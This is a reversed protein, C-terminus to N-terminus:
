SASRAWSGLWVNNFGESQRRRDEVTMEGAPAWWGRRLVSEAWARRDSEGGEFQEFWYVSGAPVVRRAPKPEGKALDWGSVVDHRGIAAALLKAGFGGSRLVYGADSRAVGPPLWGERFMGPTALVVRFSPGVAEVSPPSTALAGAIRVAHGDGGLRLLGDNPLLADAGQVGVMLSVRDRLAITDTTYLMGERATRVEADLAIGLRPDTTWFVSNPRPTLKSAPEERLHRGLNPVSLWLGGVAKARDAQRLVPVWPLGFSGKGGLREVPVPELAHLAIRDGNLVGVLDAPAPVWAEGNLALGVVSVRFSGPEDYTGLERLVDADQVKGDRVAHFPIGKDALIRTRIAGALMSPWPPMLCAGHGDSFLRNGRPALVDLPELSLYTTM